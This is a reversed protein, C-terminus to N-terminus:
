ALVGGDVNITAGTIFAATIEEATRYRGLATSRSAEPATVPRRARSLL